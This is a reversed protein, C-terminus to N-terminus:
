FGPQRRGAAPRGRPGQVQLPAQHWRPLAWLPHRLAPPPTDRFYLNPGMRPHSKMSAMLPGLREELDEANHHLGFNVVTVDEPAVLEGLDGLQAEAEEMKNYRIYCVKTGRVMHICSPPPDSVRQTYIRESLEADESINRAIQFM